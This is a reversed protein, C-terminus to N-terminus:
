LFTLSSLFKLSNIGSGLSVLIKSILGSNLYTELMLLEIYNEAWDAITVFIPIILFLLKNKFFYRIWSAYM